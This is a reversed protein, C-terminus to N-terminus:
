VDAAAALCKALSVSLTSCEGMYVPIICVILRGLSAEMEMRDNNARKCLLVRVCVQGFLILSAVTFLSRCRCSADIAFFTHAGQASARECVFM